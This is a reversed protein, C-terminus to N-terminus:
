NHNLDNWEKEFNMFPDNSSHGSKPRRLLKYIYYVAYAAILGAIAYIHSVAMSLVILGIIMWAIKGIASDSKMFQKFVIFLLWISVGLLVMPGLMSFAFILAVLGAIFLLFKKM